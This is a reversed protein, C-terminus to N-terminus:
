RRNGPIFPPRSASHFSAVREMAKAASMTGARTVGEFKTLIIHNDYCFAETRIRGHHRDLAVLEYYDGDNVYLNVVVQFSGIEHLSARAFRTAVTAEMEAAQAANHTYGTKPISAVYHQPEGSPSGM